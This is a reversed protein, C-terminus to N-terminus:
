SQRNRNRKGGRKKMRRKAKVEREECRLSFSFFLSCSIALESSHRTGRHARTIHLRGTPLAHATNIEGKLASVHGWLHGTERLVPGHSDPKWISPLNQKQQVGAEQNWCRQTVYSGQAGHLWLKGRSKEEGWRQKPNM